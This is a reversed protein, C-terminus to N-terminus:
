RAFFERVMRAVLEPQDNQVQHGADPIFRFPIDPLLKALERGQAVPVFEDREGWLSLMPITLCPLAQRMDDDLRWSRENAVRISGEVFVRGAEVAGPRTASRLYLDILEDTVLSKNWVLGELMRRMAAPSTDNDRLAQVAPTLVQPLGFAAGVRSSAVLVMKRVRDPHLMAYRVAVWSGQSNGVLSFEDLCLADVFDELHWVRSVIGHTAPVYPDTFGWGGISDLALLRYRDALYPMFRGFSAAGSNGAGTGHLLVIPPGDDGAETYHTRVRGAMVYRSRLSAEAAM